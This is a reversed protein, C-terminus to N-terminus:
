YGHQPDGLIWSGSDRLGEEGISTDELVGGGSGHFKSNMPLTVRWFRLEGVLVETELECM